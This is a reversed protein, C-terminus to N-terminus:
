LVDPYTYGRSVSIAVGRTNFEIIILPFEEGLGSSDFIRDEWNYCIYAVANEYNLEKKNDANRWKGCFPKKYPVIDTYGYDFEGYRAIIEEYHKGIIWDMDYRLSSVVYNTAFGLLLGIILAIITFRNVFRKFM